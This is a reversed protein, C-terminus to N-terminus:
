RCRNLFVRMYGTIRCFSFLRSMFQPFVIGGGGGDKNSRTPCEGRLVVVGGDRGAETESWYSQNAGAKQACVLGTDAAQKNIGRRQPHM